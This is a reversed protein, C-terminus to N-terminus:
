TRLTSTRKYRGQKTTQESVTNLLSQLASKSLPFQKESSKAKLARLVQYLVSCSREILFHHVYRQGDKSTLKSSPSVLKKEKLQQKLFQNLIELHEDWDENSNQVYVKLENYCVQDVESLKEALSTEFGHKTALNLAEFGLQRTMVFTNNIAQMNAYNQFQELAKAPLSKDLNVKLSKFLNMGQNYQKCKITIMNKMIKLETKTSLEFKKLGQIVVAYQTFLDSIDGQLKAFFEVNSQGSENVNPEFVYAEVLEQFRPLSVELKQEIKRLRDHIEGVEKLSGKPADKEAETLHYQQM